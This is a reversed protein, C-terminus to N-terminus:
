PSCSRESRWGRRWGAQAALAARPTASLLAAPAAAWAANYSLALATLAASLTFGRRALRKQLMKRARALRGSVTGEKLRLEKAAEAKSYGELCCLVFPAQYKEKM